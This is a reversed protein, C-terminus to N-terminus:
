RRAMRVLKRVRVLNRIVTQSHNLKHHSILKVQAGAAKLTEICELAAKFGATKDNKSAVAIYNKGSLNKLKPHQLEHWAEALSEKTFGNVEFKHRESEFSWIARTIDGGAIVVGWSLEPIDDLSGYLVFGGLSAGVFGFEKYGKKQLTRITDQIYKESQEIAKFLLKPDGTDFIALTYGLAIVSYNDRLLARIPLRLKSVSIGYPGLLFIARTAKPKLYERTEVLM